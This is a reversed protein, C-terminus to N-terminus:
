YILFDIGSYTSRLYYDIPHGLSIKIFYVQELQM